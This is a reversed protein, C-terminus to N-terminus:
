KQLWCVGRLLGPYKCAHIFPQNQLLRNALFLTLDLSLMGVGHCGLQAGSYPIMGAM